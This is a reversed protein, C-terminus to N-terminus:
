PLQSANINRADVTVTHAYWNEEVKAGVARLIRCMVDVDRLRPVDNIECIGDCMITAALIPLVANKSGSIEVEGVLPGSQEVIYKAM